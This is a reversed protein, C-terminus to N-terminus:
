SLHKILLVENGRENFVLEDAIARTILVGLGGPRLGLGARYEMTALIDKPDLSSAAHPVVRRDFGPGEDRFHYVIARETRAATVEIVKESDFGAGHEIANLLMERFATMLLDRQEEPLASQYESMFRILREATLLHSAVRLTFWNPLGSVVEIGDRWNTTELARRIMDVIGPFDFPVTFCAFVHARLSAIIEERTARPALVIVRVGPRVRLVEEAFALDESMSTAIDTIVVDAARGRIWTLAELSGACSEIEYDRLQANSVLAAALEPNNGVILVRGLPATM